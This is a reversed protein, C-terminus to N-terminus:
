SNQQYFDVIRRVGQSYNGDGIEHILQKMPKPISVKLRTMPADFM